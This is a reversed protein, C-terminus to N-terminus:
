RDNSVMENWKQESLRPPADRQLFVVHASRVLESLQEIFDTGSLTGEVVYQDVLGSLAIGLERLSSFYSDRLEESAKLVEECVETYNDSANHLMMSLNDLSRLLNTISQPLSEPLSRAPLEGLARRLFENYRDHGQTLMLEAWGQNFCEPHGHFHASMTGLDDIMRHLIRKVNESESDPLKSSWELVLDVLLCTQSLSRDVRQIIWLSTHDDDRSPDEDTSNTRARERQREGKEINGQWLKSLRFKM